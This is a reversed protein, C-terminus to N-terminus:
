VGKGTQSYQKIWEEVQHDLERQLEAPDQSLANLRDSTVRMGNVMRWGMQERLLYENATM